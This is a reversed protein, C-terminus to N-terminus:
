MWAIPRNLFQWLPQVLHQGSLRLFKHLQKALQRLVPLSIGVFACTLALIIPGTGVGIVAKILLMVAVSLICTRFGSCVKQRIWADHFGRYLGYWGLIAVAAVPISIQGGGGGYQKWAVIWLLFGIPAALFWATLFARGDLEGPRWIWLVLIVLLAMGIPAVYFSRSWVNRTLHVWLPQPEIKRASHIRHWRLM